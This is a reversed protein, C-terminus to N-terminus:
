PQANGRAEPLDLVQGTLSFFYCAKTDIGLTIESHPLRLAAPLRAIVPLNRRGELHYDLDKSAGAAFQKAIHKPLGEGSVAGYLITEHGLDEFRVVSVVIRQDEPVRDPPVFAEPRLGVIVQEQRVENGLERLVPVSRGGFRIAQRGDATPELPSVFLNMAPSGIFTAVFLNAPGLYLDRPTGFQQLRGQHLVALRDGMTVAEIQDHTVYLTTTAFRKQLRAIEARMQVRLKADLNSLPEDM